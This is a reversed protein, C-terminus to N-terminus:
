YRGQQEGIKLKLLERGGRGGVRKPRLPEAKEGAPRYVGPFGAGTAERENGVYSCAAGESWWM